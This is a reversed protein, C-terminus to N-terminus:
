AEFPPDTLPSEQICELEKRLLKDFDIGAFFAHAKIEEVGAAGGAGGGHGLRRGAAATTVGSLQRAFM